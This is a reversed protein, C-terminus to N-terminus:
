PNKVFPSGDEGSEMSVSDLKQMLKLTFDSDPEERYLHDEWLRDEDKSIPKM